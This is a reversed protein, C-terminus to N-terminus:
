VRYKLFSGLLNINRSNFKVKPYKLYCTIMLYMLETLSIMYKIKHFNLSKLDNVTFIEQEQFGGFRWRQPLKFHFVVRTSWRSMSSFFSFMTYFQKTQAIRTITNSLCWLPTWFNVASFSLAFRLLQLSVTGKSLCPFAVGKSKILLQCM